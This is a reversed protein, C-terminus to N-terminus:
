EETNDTDDDLSLVNAAAAGNTLWPAFVTDLYTQTTTNAKTVVIHVIQYVVEDRQKAAARPVAFRLTYMIYSTDEISEPFGPYLEHANEATLNFGKGAACSLALDEVYAKDLIPQKTPTNKDTPTKVFGEGLVVNYDYDPNTGTITLKNSAFSVNAVINPNNNIADMVQNALDTVNTTKAVVSVTWNSRENFVVGKKAFILTYESGVTINSPMTVERLFGVFPSNSSKVVTLSKVDVEPILFATSDVDRGTAIAFNKSAATTLPSAEGLEYICISGLKLKRFDRTGVVTTNPAVNGPLYILQKM